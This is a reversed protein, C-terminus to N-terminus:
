CAFSQDLGLRIRISKVHTSIITLPLVGCAGMLSPSVVAHAPNEQLSNM